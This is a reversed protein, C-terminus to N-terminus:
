TVMVDLAPYTGSLLIGSQHGKLYGEYTPNYYDYPVYTSKTTTRSVLDPSELLVKDGNLIDQEFVGNNSEIVSRSESEFSEFDESYLDIDDPNDPNRCIVSTEKEEYYYRVLAYKNLTINKSLISLSRTQTLYNSPHYFSKNGGLDSAYAFVPFKSPDGIKFCGGMNDKNNMFNMAFVDWDEFGPETHEYFYVLNNLSYMKNIELASLIDEEKEKYIYAGTNLYFKRSGITKKKKLNTYEKDWNAVMGIGITSTQGDEFLNDNVCFVVDHRALTLSMNSSVKYVYPPAKDIYVRRKIGEPHIIWDEGDYFMIIIDHEGSEFNSDTLDLDFCYRQDFNDFTDVNLEHETEYKKTDDIIEINKGSSDKVQIKVKFDPIKEQNKEFYPVCVKVVGGLMPIDRGERYAVESHDKDPIREFFPVALDFYVPRVSGDPELGIEQNSLDRFGKVKIRFRGALYDLEEPEFESVDLTGRWTDFALFKTSFMNYNNSVTNTFLKYNEIAKNKETILKVLKIEPNNGYIQNINNYSFYHTQYYNNDNDDSIVKDGPCSFIMPENLTIEIKLENFSKNIVEKITSLDKDTSDFYHTIDTGKDRIGDNDKDIDVGWLVADGDYDEDTNNFGNKIEIFGDDDLDPDFFNFNGDNDLDGESFITTDDSLLEIKYVHPPSLAKFSNIKGAGAIDNTEFNSFTFLGPNEHYPDNFDNNYIPDVSTLLINRYKLYLDDNINSLPYRYPYPSLGTADFSRMILSLIGTVIPAALSNGTDVFWTDCTTTSCKGTSVIDVGPACIDPRINQDIYLRNGEREGNENTAAVKLHRYPHLVNRIFLEGDGSQNKLITIMFGNYENELFINRLWRYFGDYYTSHQSINVLNFSWNNNPSHYNIYNVAKLCLEVADSTTQGPKTLILPYFGSENDIGYFTEDQNACIIGTVLTGHGSSTNWFDMVQIETRNNQPEFPDYGYYMNNNTVTYGLNRGDLQNHKLNVGTDLIGIYNVRQTPYYGSNLLKNFDIGNNHAGVFTTSYLHWQSGENYKPPLPLQSRTIGEYCNGSTTISGFWILEVRYDETLLFYLEVIDNIEYLEYTYLGGRKNTTINENPDLDYKLNYKKEFEDIEVQTVFDFFILFITKGTFPRYYQESFELLPNLGWSVGKLYKEEELKNYYYSLKKEDKIKIRLFTKNKKCIEFPYKELLMKIKQESIRYFEIHWKIYEPKVGLRYFSTLKVKYKENKKNIFEEWHKIKEDLGPWDPYKLYHNDKNEKEKDKDNFEETSEDNNTEKSVEIIEPKDTEINEIENNQNNGKNESIEVITNEEKENVPESKSCGNSLFSFVLVSATVIFVSWLLYRKKM